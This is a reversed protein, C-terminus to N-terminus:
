NKFLCEERWKNLEEESSFWGNLPSHNKKDVDWNSDDCPDVEKPEPLSGLWFILWLLISSGIITTVIVQRNEMLFKELNTANFGIYEMLRYLLSASIYISASTWFVFEFIFNMVDLSWLYDWSILAIYISLFPIIFFNLLGISLNRM